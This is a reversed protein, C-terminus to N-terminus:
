LAVVRRTQVGLGDIGCRLTQGSRLYRPEPDLFASGPPTGTVIVDGPELTMYRSITALLEPVTFLMDDTRAAQVRRGDVESWLTAPTAFEDPTVLWPGLPAFGDLNKGRDWQGANVPSGPAGGRGFQWARESLDNCVCYGAVYGAADAADIRCARRGVVVALEVEWDVCDADAPLRLPDDPGCLASAAKLFIVPTEPLALGAAQALSRYNLGVGVIKGIGAIPCGIRGPHDVRHLTEPDIARLATLTKPALTEPTIDDITASLDRVKGQRDLLGPRESGATGYRLLKM